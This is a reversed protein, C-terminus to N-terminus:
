VRKAAFVRLASALSARRTLQRDLWRIPAPCPYTSAEGRALYVKFGHFELLQTLAPLTYVYRHGGIGEQNWPGWKGVNVQTSLEMSHPVYGFLFFARNFWAALNPTGINLVSWEDMVRYCEELLYDPSSVHEIIHNLLLSDWTGDPLGADMVDWGTQLDLTTVEAGPYFEERARHGDGGGVDLVRLTAGLLRTSSPPM